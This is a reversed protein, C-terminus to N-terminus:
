YGRTFKCITHCNESFLRVFKVEFEGLHEAIEFEVITPKGLIVNLHTSNLVDIPLYVSIQLQFVHLTNLLAAIVEHLRLIDGVEEFSNLFGSESSGRVHM